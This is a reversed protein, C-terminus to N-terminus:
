WPIYHVEQIRGKGIFSALRAIWVNGLGGLKRRGSPLEIYGNKTGYLKNFAIGAALKVNGKSVADYVQKLEDLNRFTPGGSGDNLACLDYEKKKRQLDLQTELRSWKDILWCYTGDDTVTIELSAAQVNNPMFSFSTNPGLDYDDEDRQETVTVTAPTQGKLENIVQIIAQHDPQSTTMNRFGCHLAHEIALM